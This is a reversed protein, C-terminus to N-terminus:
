IVGARLLVLALLPGLSFVTYYSLAAAHRPGDGKFFEKGSRKVLQLGDRAALM